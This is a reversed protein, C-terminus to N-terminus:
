PKVKREAAQIAECLECTQWSIPHRHRLKAAKLLADRQDRMACWEREHVLGVQVSLGRPVPGRRIQEVATELADAQIASITAICKACEDDGCPAKQKVWEQATKM